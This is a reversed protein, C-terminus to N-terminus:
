EKAEINVFPIIFAEEDPNERLQREMEAVAEEVQDLTMEGFHNSSKTSVHAAAQEFSCGLLMAIMKIAVTSTIATSIFLQKELKPLDTLGIARPVAESSDGDPIIQISRLNLQASNLLDALIETLKNLAIWNGRNKLILDAVVFDIETIESEIEYTM